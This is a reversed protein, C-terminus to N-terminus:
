HGKKIKFKKKELGELRNKEMQAEALSVFSGVRVTHLKKQNITEVIIETQYGLKAFKESYKQANSFDAFAGVQITYNQDSSVNRGTAAPIKEPIQKEHLKMESPITQKAPKVPKEDVLDIKEQNDFAAENLKDANEIGAPQNALRHGAQYGMYFLFIGIAIVAILFVVVHVFTVRIDFYTKEM